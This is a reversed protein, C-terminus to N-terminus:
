AITSTDEPPIGFARDCPAGPEPTTPGRGMYTSLFESFLPDGISDITAQRGWATLVFSSGLDPYPSALLHTSGGVLAELDALEGADVDDGYAVWVAGHELSHVAQNEPVEVTYFGCNQWGPHHDGGAGPSTSYEVPTEVHRAEGLPVVTVGDIEAPEDASVESNDSAEAMQGSEDSDSASDADDAAPVETAAIAAADSDSGVTTEAPSSGGCGAAFLTILFAIAFLRRM